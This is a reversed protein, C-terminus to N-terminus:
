THRRSAPLKRVEIELKDGPILDYVPVNTVAKNFSVSFILELEFLKLFYFFRKCPFLIIIPFPSGNDGTSAFIKMDLSSSSM